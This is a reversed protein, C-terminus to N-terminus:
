KWFEWRYKSLCEHTYAKYVGVGFERRLMRALSPTMGGNDKVFRRIDDIMGHHIKKVRSFIIIYDPKANNEMVEIDVDHGNKLANDVLRTNM